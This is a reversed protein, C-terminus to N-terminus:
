HCMKEEQDSDYGEETLYEARLKDLRSTHPGKGCVLLSDTIFDDIRKL